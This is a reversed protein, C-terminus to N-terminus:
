VHLDLSDEQWVGAYHRATILAKPYSFLEYVPGAAISDRKGSFQAHQERVVDRIEDLQINRRALETRRGISSEKTKWGNVELRRTSAGEETM